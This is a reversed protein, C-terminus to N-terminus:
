GYRSVRRFGHRMHPVNFNLLIGNPLATLHLYTRLQATHIDALRALSKVEVVLCDDVIMDLRYVVDFRRGRFVLPVEVEERVTMGRARMEDALCVAYVRELLGPGIATHVAMAAGIVRTGIEEETAARDADLRPTRSRSL